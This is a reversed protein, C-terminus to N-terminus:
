ELGLILDIVWDGKVRPTTARIWGGGTARCKHCYNFDGDTSENLGGHCYSCIWRNEGRLHRLISEVQCGSEELADALMAFDVADFRTIGRALQVALHDNCILIRRCGPCTPAPETKEPQKAGCLSVPRFPNGVISRLLNARTGMPVVNPPISESWSNIATRLGHEVLPIYGNRPTGIVLEEHARCAEVWCRLKRQSVKGEVFRLLAAPDTSALWDSETMPQELNWESAIGLQMDNVTVTVPGSSKIAM